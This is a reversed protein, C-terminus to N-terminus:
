NRVGKLKYPPLTAKYTEFINDILKHYTYFAPDRVSVTPDVMIGSPLRQLFEPDASLGILHHGLNHLGFIDYYFPDM